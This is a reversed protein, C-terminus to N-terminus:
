YNMSNINLSVKKSLYLHVAREMKTVKKTQKKSQETRLHARDVDVLDWCAKDLEADLQKDKKDISAVAHDLIVDLSNEEVGHTQKRSNDEEEEETMVENIVGLNM